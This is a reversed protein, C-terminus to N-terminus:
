FTVMFVSEEDALTKSHSDTKEQDERVCLLSAKRLVGVGKAEFREVGVGGAVARYAPPRAEGPEPRVLRQRGLCIPVTRSLCFWEVIGAKMFVVLLLVVLIIYRM